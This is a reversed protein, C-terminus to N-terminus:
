YYLINIKKDLLKCNLNNVQKFYCNLGIKYLGINCYSDGLKENLNFIKELNRFNTENEKFDQINICLQNM